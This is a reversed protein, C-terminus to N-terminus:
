LLCEIFQIRDDHAACVYSIKVFQYHIACVFFRLVQTHCFKKRIYACLLSYCAQESAPRLRAHAHM